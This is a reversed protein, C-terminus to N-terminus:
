KIKGFDMTNLRKPVKGVPINVSTAPTQIAQSPAYRIGCKVLYTFKMAPTGHALLGVGSGFFDEIGTFYGVTWEKRV